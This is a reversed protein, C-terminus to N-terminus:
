YPSWKGWPETCAQLSPTSASTVLMVAVVSPAKDRLTSVRSDLSTYGELPSISSPSISSKSDCKFLADGVTHLGLARDMVCREFRTIERGHKQRHLIIELGMEMQIMERAAAIVATDHDRDAAVGFVRTKHNANEACALYCPYDTNITLNLFHVGSDSNKKWRHLCQEICTQAMPDPKKPARGLWWRHVALREWAEARARVVADPIAAAAAIGIGPLRALQSRVAQSALRLAIGEDIESRCRVQALERNCGVGTGDIRDGNFLAQGAAFYLGPAFYISECHFIM